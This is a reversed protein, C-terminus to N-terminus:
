FHHGFRYHFLTLTSSHQPKNNLTQCIWFIQKEDCMGEAYGEYVALRCLLFHSKKYIYIYIYIYVVLHKIRSAPLHWSEIAGTIALHVALRSYPYPVDTSHYQCFVWTSPFFGDWYCETWWLDWMATVHRSNIAHVVARYNLIKFINNASM